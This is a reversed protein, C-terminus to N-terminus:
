PKKGGLKVELFDDEKLIYALYGEDWALLTCLGSFDLLHWNARILTVYGRTRWLEENATSEALGLDAAAATVTAADTGLVRAMTVPTVM